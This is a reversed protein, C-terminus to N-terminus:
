FFNYLGNEFYIYEDPSVIKEGYGEFFIAIDRENEFANPKPRIALSADYRPDGFAGGSWDIISTVNGNQVLVNDITFDGHILTQKFPKPKNAKLRELLAQDGETEYYDLNYQAAQLMDDLWLQSSKLDDPCPTSHIHALTKGFLFIMEQRRAENKEKLLATRLTEGEFFELLAFSQSQEKREIYKHVKPIPLATQTTLSNLVFVEKHLWSNFQETRTRKLIFMGQESEIVGVDSTWGQQPFVISKITGLFNIIEKPLENIQLPNM